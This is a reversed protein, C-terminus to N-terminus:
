PDAGPPPTDRRARDARRVLDHTGRTMSTMRPVQEHLFYWRREKRSLLHIDCPIRGSVASLRDAPRPVAARLLGTLQEPGRLVANERCLPPDATLRPSELRRALVALAIQAEARALTAGICYRLGGGFGLHTNDRREPFRRPDRNGAALMLRVGAGQPIITGAIDSDALASRGSM